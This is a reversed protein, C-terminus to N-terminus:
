FSWRVFFVLALLLRPFSQTEYNTSINKCIEVNTFRILKLALVGINATINHFGVEVIIFFTFFM